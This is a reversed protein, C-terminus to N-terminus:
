VNCFEAYIPNKPDTVDQTTCGLGVYGPTNNALRARFSVFYIANDASADFVPTNFHAAYHADARTNNFCIM